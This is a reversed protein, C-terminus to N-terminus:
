KEKRQVMSEMDRFDQNKRSILKQWFGRQCQKTVLLSIAKNQEKIIDLLESIQKDKKDVLDLWNVVTSVEQCEAIEATEPTTNTDIMHIADVNIKLKHGDNIIYSKLDKDIRKYVAQRSLNVRKAFESITIYEAM